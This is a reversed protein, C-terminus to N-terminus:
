TGTIGMGGAVFDSRCRQPPDSGAVGAGRRKATKRRAGTALCLWCDFQPLACFGGPKPAGEGRLGRIEEGSIPAHAPVAALGLSRITIKGHAAADILGLRRMDDATENIAERLRSTAKMAM